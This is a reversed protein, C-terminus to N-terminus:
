IHNGPLVIFLFIMFFFFIIMFKHLHAHFISNMIAQFTSPANCLGFPLVLYEFHGNHTRFASKPIDLAHVRVYHYGARLDLKTFYTAGYLEDLMDDVVLIPFWDKITASNLARYNTCFRWTDDKKKVMLIHSLFPSTRPRIVGLLLM